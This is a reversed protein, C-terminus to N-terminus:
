LCCNVLYANFDRRDLAQQLNKNEKKTTTFSPFYTDIWHLSLTFVDKQVQIGLRCTHIFNLRIECLLQEYARQDLPLGLQQTDRIMQETVYVADLAKPRASVTHTIGQPNTRYHYSYPTITVMRKALPHLLWSAISDEFWYGLPFQVYSFLTTKFAKGCAYGFLPEDVAETHQHKSLVRKNSFLIMSGEVIDADCAFAKDLLATVTNQPIRDDADLFFVYPAALHKLATNRAAAPGANPQHILLIDVDQQYRQLISSTEDTSGDDVIILEVHYPGQQQRVSEIAEVLFPANNYTAMIVQLDVRHSIQKRAQCVSSQKPDPWIHELRERAEIANDYLICTPLTKKACFSLSKLLQQQLFPLRLICKRLYLLSRTPNM